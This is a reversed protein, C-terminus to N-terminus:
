FISVALFFPVPKRPILNTNLFPALFHTVYKHSNITESFFFISGYFVLLTSGVFLLMVYHCQILMPVGDSYTM